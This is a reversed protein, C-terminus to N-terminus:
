KYEDCCDLYHNWKILLGKETKTNQSFKSTKLLYSKYTKCSILYHFPIKQLLWSYYVVIKMFLWLYMTVTMVGCITMLVKKACLGYVVIYTCSPVLHFNDGKGDYKQTISFIILLFINGHQGGKARISYYILDFIILAFFLAMHWKAGKQM